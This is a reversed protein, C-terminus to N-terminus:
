GGFEKIRKLYAKLPEGDDFVRGDCLRMIATIVENPKVITDHPPLLIRGNKSRRDGLETTLSEASLGVLPFLEPLTFHQDWVLSVALDILEIARQSWKLPGDNAEIVKKTTQDVNQLVQPSKKYRPVIDDALADYAIHLKGEMFNVLKAFERDGDSISIMHILDDVITRGYMCGVNNLDDRLITMDCIIHWPRGYGSKVHKRIIM